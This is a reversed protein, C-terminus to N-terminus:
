ILREVFLAGIALPIDLKAEHSIGIAHAVISEEVFTAKVQGRACSHEIYPDTTVITTLLSQFRQDAVILVREPMCFGYKGNELVHRFGSQWTDTYTTIAKGIQTGAAKSLKGLRYSELLAIAEPASHNGQEILARYLGYTGVPFSHQYLLTGGKVFSVDTIEEGVDVVVCEENVPLTDRMAIFTTFPSTTFGIKRTGYARKLTDSFVDLVQKPAITITLAFELSLTKKGFPADTVYGNLKIASLQKEVIISEKGYVGFPGTQETFIHKIETDILTDVLKQTCTFPSTKKYVITRTQSTYWPSALVVQIFSPQHVDLSRVKAVVEQLNKTTAEVFRKIDIDEHLGSDMRVSALFLSKAAHKKLVHAGAVSSSSIDYIAFVDDHAKHSM